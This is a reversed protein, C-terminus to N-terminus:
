RGCPFAPADRFARADLPIDILFTTGRDSNSEVAVSGGHSEAVSRVYPLGIGWGYARGQKAARARRFIQFVSELEDAPIPEGENHVSVMLREHAQDSRLVIPTGSTGYKVANGVLNELARKMAGRDWWGYISTGALRFRPGYTLEAQDRVERLVAMIDFCILSLHLTEGKQFLLTDLMEQLMRDMRESNTIIRAALEKIKVPDDICHILEAAASVASLPTRLDHSLAAVFQEQLASQILAFATVSQRIAEDISANIALREPEQLPVGNENLVNFVTTRLIQYERIVDQLEYRTLRAREGGHEAAFTAMGTSSPPPPGTTVSEALHNYFVPVTDLLVPHALNGAEKVAARVQIEWQRLIADGLALMKRSVPSATGPRTPTNDTTM